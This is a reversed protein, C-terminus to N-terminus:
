LYAGQSITHPFELCAELPRWSKCEPQEEQLRALAFHGSNSVEQPQGDGRPPNPSQGVGCHILWEEESSVLWREKGGERGGERGGGGGGWTAWCLSMIWFSYARTFRALDFSSFRQRSSWRCLLATATLWDRYQRYQM